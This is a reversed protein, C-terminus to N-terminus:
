WKKGSIAQIHQHATLCWVYSCAKMGTMFVHKIHTMGKKTKQAERNGSSALEVLDGLCCDDTRISKMLRIGFPLMTHCGAAAAAVVSTRLQQFEICDCRNPRM